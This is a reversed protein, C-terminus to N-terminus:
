LDWLIRETEWFSKTTATKFLNGINTAVSIANPTLQFADGVDLFSRNYNCYFFYSASKFTYYFIPTSLFNRFSSFNYKILLTTCSFVFLLLFNTSPRRYWPPYVSLFFDFIWRLKEDRSIFDRVCKVKGAAYYFFENFVRKCSM